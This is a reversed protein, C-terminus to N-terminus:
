AEDDRPEMAYGLPVPLYEDDSGDFKRLEIQTYESLYTSVPPAPLVTVRAAAKLIGRRTELDWAEEWAHFVDDVSLVPALPNGPAAAALESEIEALRAATAALERDAETESVLGRAVLGVLRARGSKLTEREARLASLDPGRRRNNMVLSIATRVAPRALYQCLATSVHRDLAEAQRSVHKTGSGGRCRYTPTGRHNRSCRMGDQGCAGCVYLGSGLWRPTGGPSTRRAPDALVACMGEWVDRPIVAPWVATGLIKGQQEILGANRARLLVQRLDTFKWPGGRPRELGRSNWDRAVARLSRGALLADAAERLAMAESERVTVGDAEFGFPRPGGRWLGKEALQRMGRSVLESTTEATQADQAALVRAVGRGAATNLDFSPSRLFEYTIGHEIALDILDEHERPQRTLRSSTYARIKGFKEAKADAILQAYDPRTKRSHRSAGRDNDVYAVVPKGDVTREPGVITEEAATAAALLDEYQRTVGLERGEGDDSIRLYLATADTM